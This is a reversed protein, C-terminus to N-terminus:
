LNSDQVPTKPRPTITVHNIQTWNIHTWNGGGQNNKLIKPQTAYITFAHSQLDYSPPELGREAEKIINCLLETTSCYGSFSNVTTRNWGKGHPLTASNSLANSQLDLGKPNHTRVGDSGNEKNKNNKHHHPTALDPFATSKPDMITPEFGVV